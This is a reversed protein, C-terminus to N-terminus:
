ARKPEKGFLKMVQQLDSWAHKKEEPRRLLYSPHFTPMLKIGAYERWQGRIRTISADERLLTQAAVKGLAVIVEPQISGLQARLFPECSEIEDLEPTRNGPPRCKVVNCIYVEDRSFGMAEIMKTLLQGAAGVFPIGQADEDAGPGEGVFVLKARPNGVGFVVQKREKCLKCRTCDGITRRIEDLPRRDEETYGAIRPLEAISKARAAVVNKTEAPKEPALPRAAFAPGREPALPRSPPAAAPRAPAAPRAEPPRTAEAPRSVPSAPRAAASKQTLLTAADGYIVSGGDAEQWALHRRLDALLQQLDSHAHESM